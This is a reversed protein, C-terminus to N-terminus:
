GYQLVSNDQSQSKNHLFKQLSTTNAQTTSGNISALLLL